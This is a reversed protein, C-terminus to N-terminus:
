MAFELMSTKKGILGNSVWYIDYHSPDDLRDLLVVSVYGDYFNVATLVPYTAHYIYRTLDVGEVAEHTVTIPSSQHKYETTDGDVMIWHEITLQTKTVTLNYNDQNRKINVTPSTYDIACYTTSVPNDCQIALLAVLLMLYRMVCVGKKM